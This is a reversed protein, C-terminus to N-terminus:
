PRLVRGSPGGRPAPAEPSKPATGVCLPLHGAVTCTVDLLLVSVIRDLTRQEQADGPPLFATVRVKLIVGGVGTACGDDVTGRGDRIGRGVACAQPPAGPIDVTMHQAAGDRANARAIDLNEALVRRIVGSDLGEPISREGDDYVFVTAWVGTRPLDYRVMLGTSGDRRAERTREFVLGLRPPLRAAAAVVAPRPPVPPVSRAPDIPGGSDPSLRGDEPVGRATGGAGGLAAALVLVRKWDPRTPAAPLVCGGM